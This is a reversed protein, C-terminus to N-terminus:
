AREEECRKQIEAIDPITIRQQSTRVAGQKEWATLTRSVTHLTAGCMEALDKRSLPFDIETGNHGAKGAQAALRLLTHAIRREVRQTALEHLRDETERLRAGIVHVLNLGIQPHRAMLDLLNAESWSIETGNTVAIAHAPYLHDTFLGMTGFTQGRGVFRMVVQAGDEDTQLIRVRGELLIHAREAPAGQVFITM